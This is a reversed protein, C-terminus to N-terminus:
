RRRTRFCALTSASRATPAVNRNSECTLTQRRFSAPACVVLWDIWDKPGDPPEGAHIIRWNDDRQAEAQDWYRSDTIIYANNMSVIAQGASGDFSFIM